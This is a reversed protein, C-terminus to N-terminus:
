PAPARVRTTAGRSAVSRLLARVSGAAGRVRAARPRRRRSIAAALRDRDADERLREVRERVIEEAILPHQLV